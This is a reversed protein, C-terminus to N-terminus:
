ERVMTGQSFWFFQVVMCRDRVILSVVPPLMEPYIGCGSTKGIAPTFPQVVSMTIRGIRDKEFFLVLDKV